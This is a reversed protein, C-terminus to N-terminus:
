RPDPQLLVADGRSLRVGDSPIPATGLSAYKGWVSKVIESLPLAYWMAQRVLANNFPKRSANQVVPFDPTSM